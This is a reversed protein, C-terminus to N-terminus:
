IFAKCGFDQELKVVIFFSPLLLWVSTKLMTKSHEANGKSRCSLLVTDRPLMGLNGVGLAAQLAPM